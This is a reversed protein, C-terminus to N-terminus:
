HGNDLHSNVRSFDRMVVCDIDAKFSGRVLAGVSDSAEFTVDKNLGCSGQVTVNVPARLGSFTPGPTTPPPTSRNCLDSLFDATGMLTFTGDSQLAQGSANFKGEFLVATVQEPTTHTPPIISRITWSGQGRGPRGLAEIQPYGISFRLAVGASEYGIYGFAPRACDARGVESLITRGNIVQIARLDPVVGRADGSPPPINAPRGGGQAIAKQSFLVATVIFGIAIFSTVKGGGTLKIRLAEMKLM